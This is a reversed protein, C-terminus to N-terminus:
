FPYRYINWYIRGLEFLSTHDGNITPMDTLACSHGSRNQQYEKKSEGFVSM